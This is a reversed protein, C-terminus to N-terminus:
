RSTRNAYQEPGNGFVPVATATAPATQQVWQTFPNRAGWNNQRDFGFLQGHLDNSGRETQVSMRGAGARAGGAEVNGSMASVQRIASEAITSNRGGAWAQGMGTPEPVGGSSSQSASGSAAGAAGAFALQISSGDIALDTSAYGAGRLSVQTGSVPTSAASTDLVFASWQRGSVPLSQIESANLSTTVASDLPAPRDFASPGLQQLPLGCDLAAELGTAIAQGVALSPGAAVSLQKNRPETSPSQARAFTSASLSVVALVAMLTPKAWSWLHEAMKLVPEHCVSPSRLYIREEWVSKHRTPLQAPLVAVDINM